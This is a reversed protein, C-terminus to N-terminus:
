PQQQKAKTAECACLWRPKDCDSCRTLDYHFRVRFKRAGPAPKIQLLMWIDDGSPVPTVFRNDKVEVPMRAPKAREGGIATLTQKDLLVPKLDGDLLEIQFSGNEVTVEAHANRQPNLPLLRGKPGLEVPEARVSAVVGAFLLASICLQTRKTMM